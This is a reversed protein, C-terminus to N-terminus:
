ADTVKLHARYETPSQGLLKKFVRNFHTLSQFGVEYAIESIRLNPNLLLNRAKEIRVRSVYETFSVGTAKHFMKCFYFKSMHAAKAAQELTIDEALHEQIFAKARTIAPPEAYDRQVLLQNSLNAVQEAFIALLRILGEHQTPSLVRTSFYAKRLDDENVDLGWGKTLELVRQFQKETPKSRFVQGTQLMGLTNDGLRVPVASDCMGVPCTVTAAERVSAEALKQQVALCAACSRSKRAMMACFRNENRTGHHPLKWADLSRLAIPLGTVDNFAREYDQYLKSHALTEIVNENNM